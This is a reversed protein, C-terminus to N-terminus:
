RVVKGAGMVCAVTTKPFIPRILDGKEPDFIRVFGRHKERLEEVDTVFGAKQIKKSRDGVSELAEFFPLRSREEIKRLESAMKVIFDAFYQNAIKEERTLTREFQRADEEQVGFLLKFNSIRAKGVGLRGLLDILNAPNAFLNNHWDGIVLVGEDCLARNMESFHDDQSCHHLAGSSIVVDLIGTREGALYEELSECKPIYRIKKVLENIKNNELKERAEALRDWSLEVLDFVCRSALSLTREDKAMADLVADTTNGPGAGLDAIHWRRKGDDMEIMIKILLDACGINLAMDGQGLGIAKIARAIARNSESTGPTWALDYCEGSEGKLMERNEDSNSIRWAEYYQHALMQIFGPEIPLDQCVIHLLTNLRAVEVKSTIREAM